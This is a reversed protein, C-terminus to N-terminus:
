AAMTPKSGAEPRLRAQRAERTSLRRMCETSYPMKRGCDLCVLYSQRDITFPRSMRGHGCGFVSSVFNIATRLVRM